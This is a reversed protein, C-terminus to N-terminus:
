PYLRYKIPLTYKTKQPCGDRIVPIWRPMQRVLKLAQENYGKLGRKVVTDSIFGLEDILFQVYVTGEIDETIYRKYDNLYQLLLEEGGAFYPQIEIPLVCVYRYYDTTDIPPAINKAVQIPKQNPLYATECIIVGKKRYTLWLGIREDKKYAGHVFLSGNPYYYCWDGQKQGKKYYGEYSINGTYDYFLWKKTRIGKLYTGNWRPKGNIWYSQWKGIAVNNAFFGVSDVQGTDYYFTWKGTQKNNDYQGETKTQIFPLQQTQPIVWSEKYSGQKISLDNKLVEYEYRIYNTDLTVWVTEATQAKTQLGMLLCFCVSLLLLFTNKSM